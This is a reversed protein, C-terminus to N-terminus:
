SMVAKLMKNTKALEAAIAKMADLDNKSLVARAKAIGAQAKGIVDRGFDSSAVSQSASSCTKELEIIAKELDQTVRSTEKGAQQDAVFLSENDQMTQIEQKTLGSKAAVQISQQVGTQTDRASLKLIGDEDLMVSLDISVEGVPAARLGDLTFEGLLENDDARASEGQLVVFRVRTQNDRNTTFNVTTSTPVRTNRPILPHMKHDATRIGLTFPTVDFLRVRTPATGALSAAHVAAGVAVAEDPHVGQCPPKGFFKTVAEQVARMRSSGGVLLVDDIQNKTLKATRLADGCHTITKEVLDKVLGDFALRALQRDLHLPEGSALTAIFPLRIDAKTETSLQCKATEAVDKLRQLAIRDSRLDLGHEEKVGDLLWEIVKADFDEGGLMSDGGTGLVEFDGEPSVRVISIDFTGGGLDYVVITKRMRRGYGYAIAAATPENIIRVVELGAIEGADRTAQRQNDNFYAPVTIVARGVATELNEQAAVKLEQLLMANLEPISYVQGRLEVRVDDNAGRVLKCSTHATTAQVEPSDFRRGILRKMALITHEANTVAQRKAVHGVLRKGAATFSVISPTTLYGRNPIVKPTGHQVIAICSNTTGLDIGLVPASEM